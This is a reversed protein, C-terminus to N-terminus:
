LLTDIIMPSLVACPPYPKWGVLVSGGTASLVISFIVVVIPTVIGRDIGGSNLCHNARGKGCTGLERSICWQPAGRDDVRTSERFESEAMFMLRTGLTILLWRGVRDGGALMDTTCLYFIQDKGWEAGGETMEMEGKAGEDNLGKDEFGNDLLGWMFCWFAEESTVGVDNWDDEDLLTLPCEGLVPSPFGDLCLPVLEFTLAWSASKLLVRSQMAPLWFRINWTGTGTGTSWTASAWEQM